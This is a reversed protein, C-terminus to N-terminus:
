LAFHTFYYMQEYNIPNPNCQWIMESSNDDLNQISLSDIWKGYIRFKKDKNKNMCVGEIEFANKMNWGRKKFEVECVDGTNMNKVTMIGVHEVYMEGFILNNVTTTPREITFQEDTRKLKVNQYGLTKVELIKGWFATKM